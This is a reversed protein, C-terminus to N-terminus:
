VWALYAQGRQRGVYGDPVRRVERRVLEQVQGERALEVARGDAHPPTEPRQGLLDGPLSVFGRGRGLLAPHRPPSSPREPELQQM